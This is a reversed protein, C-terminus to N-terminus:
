GIVMDGSPFAQVSHSVNQKCHMDDGNVSETHGQKIYNSMISLHIADKCDAELFTCLGTM